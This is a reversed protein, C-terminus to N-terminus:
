GTGPSNSFASNPSEVPGDVTPPKPPESRRCATSRRACNKALSQAVAVAACTVAAVVAPVSALQAEPSVTMNQPESEEVMHLLWADRSRLMKGQPMAVEQPVNMAGVAVGM